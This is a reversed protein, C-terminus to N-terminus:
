NKNLLCNSDIYLTQNTSPHELNLCTITANFRTIGEGIFTINGTTLDCAETINCYDSMDIEWNNGAGACTCTDVPVFPYFREDGGLYLSEIEAASLSRNWIYLEDIAGAYYNTSSRGIYSNTTSAEVPTSLTNDSLGADAGNIYFIVSSINYYVVAVHYRVNTTITGISHANGHGINSYRIRGDPVANFSFGYNSQPLSTERTSYIKPQALSTVNIWGAITKVDNVLLPKYPISYYDDGDSFYEQGYIGDRYTPTGQATGNYRGTSDDGSNEFQYAAELGDTLDPSSSILPLFIVSSVVALIWIGYIIKLEKDMKYVM